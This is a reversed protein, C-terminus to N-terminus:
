NHSKINKSPQSAAAQDKSLESMGYISLVKRLRNDSINTLFPNNDAGAFIFEIRNLSDLNALTNLVSRLRDNSAVSQTFKKVQPAELKLQSDVLM